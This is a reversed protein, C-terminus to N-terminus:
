ACAWFGGEGDLIGAISVEEAGTTAVGVVVGTASGGATAGVAAAVTGLPDTM